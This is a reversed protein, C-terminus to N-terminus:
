VDDLSPRSSRSIPRELIPRLLVALSEADVPKTMFQTIGLMELIGAEKSGGRDAVVIIKLDESGQEGRITAVVELGNVEPLSLDVLVVDPRIKELMELAMKGDTASHVRCGPVTAKATGHVLARFEADADAVLLKGRTGGPTSRFVRNPTDHVVGRSQSVPRAVAGSGSHGPSRSSRYRPYMSPRMPMEMVGM